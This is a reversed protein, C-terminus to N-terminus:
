IFGRKKAEILLQEDDGIVNLLQKIYNKRKEIASLSLPIYEVLNKTKVGNSLHFLIKRNFEDIQEDSLVIKNTIKKVTNSYYNEGELITEFAKLIIKATSDSKILIGNHPVTLLINNLRQPNDFMTSIIIKAEPIERDILIALDEGSTITGDKSAPLQIDLFVVDFPTTNKSINIAQVAQDCSNAKIIRLKFNKNKSLVNKYGEIISHHDDIMLINLEKKMVENKFCKDARLSCENILLPRIKFGM